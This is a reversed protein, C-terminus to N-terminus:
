LPPNLTFHLNTNEDVQVNKPIQIYLVPSGGHIYVGSSRYANNSRGGPLFQKITFERDFRALEIETIEPNAIKLQNGELVVEPPKIKDTYDIGNIISRGTYGTVEILGDDINKNKVIVWANPEEKDVAVIELQEGNYEFNWQGQMYASELQDLRGERAADYFEQFEREQDNVSLGNQWVIEGGLFDDKPLMHVFIFSVLLIAIYGVLIWRLKKHYVKEGKRKIYTILGVLVLLLFFIILSSGVM